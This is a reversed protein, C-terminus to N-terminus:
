NHVHLVVRKKGSEAGWTVSVRHQLPPARKLVKETGLSMEAPRSTERTGEVLKMASQKELMVGGGGGM